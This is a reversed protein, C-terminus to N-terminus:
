DRPKLSFMAQRSNAAAPTSQKKRSRQVPTSPTGQMAPRAQGQNASLGNQFQFSSFENPTYTFPLHRDYYGPQFHSGGGAANHSTPDPYLRSHWWFPQVQPIQALNPASQSSGGLVGPERYKPTRNRGPRETTGTGQGAREAPATKGQPLNYQPVRATFGCYYPDETKKKEEGRKLLRRRNSTRPKLTSTEQEELFNDRSRDRKRESTASRKFM